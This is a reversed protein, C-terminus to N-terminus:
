ALLPLLERTIIIDQKVGPVCKTGAAVSQLASWAGSACRQFERGGICNWVGSKSCPAGAAYVTGATSAGSLAAESPVSTTATLEGGALPVSAAIQSLADDPDQANSVEPKITVFTDIFVGGPRYLLSM